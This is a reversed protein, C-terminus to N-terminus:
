LLEPLWVLTDQREAYHLIPPEDPVPVGEAAPVDNRELDAEAPQLSWPPHHIQARLIRGNHLTTYLAYRETLFHELSGPGPRAPPGTPRYRAVLDAGGADPRRSRYETWGGRSAVEMEAFRYPLRYLTRAARVALRSGADLSFFFVGGRDGVRVYTRLNTEPFTSGVPLRPLGRVRLGVLRFPTLAVWAAGDRIDLDLAAPVLPRLVEPDVAWHAFLLTRWSQFLM